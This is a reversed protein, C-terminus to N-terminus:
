AAEKVELREPCHQVLFRAFEDIERLVHEQMAPYAYFPLSHYEYIVREGTREDERAVLVEYTFKSAHFMVLYCRWQFSDAYREADFRNTLKYDIVGHEMGDIVGVLTVPGVSTQVQLEGKLERIRPLPISAELEFRFVFGDHEVRSLEEGARANELVQHLAKGALMAPTPPEQRRLQALLDALEVDEEDRYRRYSELETVSIRM